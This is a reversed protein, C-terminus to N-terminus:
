FPVDISQILVHIYEHCNTIIYFICASKASTTMRRARTKSSRVVDRSRERETERERKREEMREIRQKCNKEGGDEMCYKESTDAPDHDKTEAM